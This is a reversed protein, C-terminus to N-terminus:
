RVLNEVQNVIAHAGPNVAKYVLLGDKGIIAVSPIYYPPNFFDRGADRPSAAVVFDGLGHRNKWSTLFTSDAPAGRRYGEISLSFFKVPDNRFQRAEPGLEQFEQQCPGCWGANYLLVRVTDKHDDLCVEDGNLDKWCDDAVVDGVQYIALAPLSMMCIALVVFLKSM